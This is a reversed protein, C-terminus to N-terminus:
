QEEATNVHQECQAGQRQCMPQKRGQTPSARQVRARQTGALQTPFQLLGSRGDKNEACAHNEGPSEQLQAPRMQRGIGARGTNGQFNQSQHDPVIHVEPDIMTEQMGAPQAAIVARVMRGHHHCRKGGVAKMRQLRDHQAIHDQQGHDHMVETEPREQGHRQEAQKEVANAMGIVIKEGRDGAAVPQCGATTMLAM